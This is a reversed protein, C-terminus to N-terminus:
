PRRFRAYAAGFLLATVIATRTSHELDTRRRDDIEERFGAIYGRWLRDDTLGYMSRMSDPATPIPRTTERYNWLATGAALGTIAAPTSWPSARPRLVIGLALASAEVYPFAIAFATPRRLVHADRRGTERALEASDVPALLPRDDPMYPPAPPLCGSTLSAIAALCM